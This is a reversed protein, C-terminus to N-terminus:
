IPRAVSDPNEGARLSLEAGEKGSELCEFLNRVLQGLRDRKIGDDEIEDVLKRALVLMKDKVEDGEERDPNDGYRYYMLGAAIEAATERTARSADVEALYKSIRDAVTAAHPLNLPIDFFGSM